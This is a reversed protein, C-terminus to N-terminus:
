IIGELKKSFKICTLGNKFEEHGQMHGRYFMWGDVIKLDILNLNFVLISVKGLKIIAAHLERTFSNINKTISDNQIKLNLDNFEKKIAEHGTVEGQSIRGKLNELHSILDNLTNSIEESCTKQKKVVRNTDEYTKLMELSPRRSAM